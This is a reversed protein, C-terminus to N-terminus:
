ARRQEEADRRDRAEAVFERSRKLHLQKARNLADNAERLAALIRLHECHDEDHLAQDKSHLPHEAPM